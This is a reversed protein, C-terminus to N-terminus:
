QAGGLDERLAAAARQYVHRAAAGERGYCHMLLRIVRPLSGPVPIEQACLLPVQTLGLERAAQAPFAADLDPTATFICSIIAAPDLDNASILERLLAGTATLIEDADNHEVSTAGRLAIVRTAAM